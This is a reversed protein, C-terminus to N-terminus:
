NESSEILNPKANANRAGQKEQIIPEEKSFKVAKDSKVNENQTSTNNFISFADKEQDQM